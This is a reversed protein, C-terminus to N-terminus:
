VAKSAAKRRRTLFGAGMVGMGVLLAVSGPEPVATTTIPTERLTFTFPSIAQDPTVMTYTFTGVGGPALSGGSFTLVEPGLSITSFVNSTAAPTGTFFVSAGGTPLATFSAGTGTGLQFSYGSFATGTGNVVTSTVQYQTSGGSNTGSLVLDLPAALTNLTIGVSLNNSGTASPFNNPATTLSSATATGPGVTTILPSTQLTAAHGESGSGAVLALCGLAAFLTRFRIMCTNEM